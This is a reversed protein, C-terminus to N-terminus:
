AERHLYSDLPPLILLSYTVVIIHILCDILYVCKCFVAKEEVYTLSRTHNRSSFPYNGGRDGGRGGRGTRDGRRNGSHQNNNNNNDHQNNNNNNNNM